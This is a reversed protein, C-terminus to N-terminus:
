SLFKEVGWNIGAQLGLWQPPLALCAVATPLAMSLIVEPFGLWQPPFALGAAATALVMALIIEPFGLWQPPL